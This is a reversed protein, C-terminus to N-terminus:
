VRHSRLTESPLEGFLKSYSKAFLSLHAFGYDLAVRSVSLGSSQCRILERRAANLRRGKIYEHLGMNLVDIFAYELTRLSVGCADALIETNIGERLHSEVFDCARRVYRTRNRRAITSPGASTGELLGCAITRILGDEVTKIEAFTKASAGAAAAMSIAKRILTHITSARTATFEWARARDGLEDLRRNGYALLAQDLRDAPISVSSVGTREPSRLVADSGAHMTIVQSATLRHGQFIPPTLAVESVALAFMGRPASGRIIVSPEAYHYHLVLGTRTSAHFSGSFEGRTVQQYTVDWGIGHSWDAIETADEAPQPRPVCPFAQGQATVYV